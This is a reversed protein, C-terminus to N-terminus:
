TGQPNYSKFFQSYMDQIENIGEDYYDTPGENIIPYMITHPDKTHELGLICHGLEHKILIDQEDAKADKWNDPDILVTSNGYGVGSCQGITVTNDGSDKDIIVQFKVVVGQEHDLQLGYSHASEIFSDYFPQLVPDITNPGRGCGLLIFNLFLFITTVRNM